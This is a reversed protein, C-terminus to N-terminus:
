GFRGLIEVRCRKNKYNTYIEIVSIKSPSKM